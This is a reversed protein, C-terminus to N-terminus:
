EREEAKREIKNEETAENSEHSICCLVYYLCSQVVREVLSAKHM